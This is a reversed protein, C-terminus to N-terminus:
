KNHVVQQPFPIEIGNADFSDKVRHMLDFRVDWYNERRVWPRFVINVSSDRLASVAVEPPPDILIRPDDNMLSSLIGKAKEISSTYGIGIELDIRRLDYGSVNKIVDGFLKANPVMIKMNDVTALVTTFLDLEKVTGAVGAGEIFDGIRFPRLILLMVGAAFNSLAGQLALGIALGAAGLVAVFSTTQIGFKALAALIAFILVAFYSLNAVFSSVAKDTKTKSFVRILVKKTIGAAIRGLILITIAGIVNMGFMGLNLIIQDIVNHM